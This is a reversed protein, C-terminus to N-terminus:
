HSQGHKRPAADVITMNNNLRGQRRQPNVNKVKRGQPVKMRDDDCKKKRNAVDGPKKSRASPPVRNNEELNSETVTNHQYFDVCGDNSITADYPIKDEDDVKKCGLKEQMSGHSCSAERTSNKNTKRQNDVKKRKKGYQLTIWGESLNQIKSADDKSCSDGSPSEGKNNKM